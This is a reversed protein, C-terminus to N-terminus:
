CGWLYPGGTTIYSACDLPVTAETCGAPYLAKCSVKMVNLDRMNAVLFDNFCRGIATEVALAWKDDALSLHVGLPGIPRQNFSGQRVAAEIRTLLTKVRDGGLAGGFALM